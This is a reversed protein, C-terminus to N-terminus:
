VGKGLAAWVSSGHTDTFCFSALAQIASVLASFAFLGTVKRGQNFFGFLLVIGLTTYLAGTAIGLPYREAWNEQTTCVFLAMRFALLYFVATVCGM